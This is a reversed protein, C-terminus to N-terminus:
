KPVYIIEVAGSKGNDSVLNVNRKKKGDKIQLAATNPPITGLNEAYMVLINSGPELKVTFRKKRKKLTLDKKILEDNMFLTVIDGDVENRDWVTVKVRKNHVTFSEQVDIERTTDTQVYIDVPPAATDIHMKPKAYWTYRLNLMYTSGEFTTNSVGVSTNNQIFDYQDTYTTEFPVHAVFGFDFSRDWDPTFTRVGVEMSVMYSSQSVDHRTLLLGTGNESWDQFEGEVLKESFNKHAFTSSFAPRVYMFRDGQFLSSGFTLQYAIGYNFYKDMMGWGGQQSGYFMYTFPQIFTYFAKNREFKLEINQFITGRKNSFMTGASLGFSTNAAIGFQTSGDEGVWLQLPNQGLNITRSMHDHGSVQTTTSPSYGVMGGHIALSWQRKPIEAPTFGGQPAPPPPAVQASALNWLFLFALFALIRPLHQM